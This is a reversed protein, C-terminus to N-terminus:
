IYGLSPSQASGHQWIGSGGAKMLLTTVSQGAGRISVHCFGSQPPGSWAVTGAPFEFLVTPIAPAPARRRAEALIANIAPLDDAEGDLKAGYTRLVAADAVMAGPAAWAAKAAFSALLPAALVARRGLGM